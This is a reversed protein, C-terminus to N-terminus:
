DGSVVEGIDTPRSIVFSGNPEIEIEGASDAVPNGNCDTAAAVVTGLPL